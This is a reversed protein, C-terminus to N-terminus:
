LGIRQYNTAKEFGEIRFKKKGLTLKQLLPLDFYNFFVPRLFDENGEHNILFRRLERKEQILAHLGTGEYVRYYSNVGVTDVPQSDLFSIIQAAEGADEGPSGTSLDVAVKISYNAALGILEGIQSLRSAADWTNISLTIMEAGSLNLWRMLEDSFPDPKMYLAWRVPGAMSAIAKCIEVCHEINLNFESDCLHFKECGQRQLAAIEGGVDRPDHYICPKNAETCFLCSGTCGIQTRFGAIGDNALYPQYDFVRHRTWRHPGGLFDNVGHSIRAPEEGRELSDLLRVLAIEGPGTIGYEAGTFNMIAGPMISFGAGGLVTRYGRSRCIGILHAAEPLFFENNHYLVSDIQRLTFGAIDPKCRHLAELMDKEPDRAFCLDLIEFRHMSQALAGALYELGLPM